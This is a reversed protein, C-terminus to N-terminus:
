SGETNSRSRSSSSSPAPPPDEIPTANAASDDSAPPDPRTSERLAAMEQAEVEALAEQTLHERVAEICLTQEQTSLHEAGQMAFSWPAEANSTRTAEVIPAFGDILEDVSYQRQQDDETTHLKTVEAM